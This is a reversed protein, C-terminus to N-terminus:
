AASGERRPFAILALLLGPGIFVLFFPDFDSAVFALAGFILYALAIIRAPVLSAADGRRRVFTHLVIAGFALMAAGGFHWGVLAGRLLDDPVQAAALEKRLMPGGMASHAVASLVILVGVVMGVIRRAQSM